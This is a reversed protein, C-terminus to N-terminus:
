NKLFHSCKKVYQFHKSCKCLLIAKVVSIQRGPSIFDVPLMDKRYIDAHGLDESWVIRM